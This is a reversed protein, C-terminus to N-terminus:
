LGVGSSLGVRVSSAPTCTTSADLLRNPNVIPNPNLSPSSTCTRSAIPLYRRAAIRTTVRYMLPTSHRRYIVM